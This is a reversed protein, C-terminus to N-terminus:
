PQNATAVEVIHMIGRDTSEPLMVARVRKGRHLEAPRTAFVRFAGDGRSGNARNRGTVRIVEINEPHAAAAWDGFTVDIRQQSGDTYEVTATGTAAGNTALGLFSISTAPVGGLKIHQGHPIWNDPTGPEAHPWTIVIGTGDLAIRAGPKAGAAAPSERSLSWDSLDMSGMNGHGDPTTGVNNRADAGAMYSPPVDRAGTGWLGPM